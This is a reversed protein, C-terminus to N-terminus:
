AKENTLTWPLDRRQLDAPYLSADHVLTERFSGAAAGCPCRGDGTGGLDLGRPDDHTAGCRPCAWLWIQKVFVKVQGGAPLTRITARTWDLDHPQNPRNDDGFIICEVHGPAAMQSDTHTRSWAHVSSLGVPGYLPELSLWLRGSIRLLADLKRREAPANSKITAGVFWNSPLRGQVYFRRLANEARDPQQTLFVYTHQPAAAVAELCRLTENMPRAKDFLDGLFEVGVVAPKKRAAPQGLREPHLHVEFRRCKECAPATPGGGTAQRRAWCTPCGGTGGSCGFGGPNWALDLYSIGTKNM